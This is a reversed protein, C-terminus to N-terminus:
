AVRVDLAPPGPAGAGEPEPPPLWAVGQQVLTAALRYRGPETPCWVWAYVHRRHGPKVAAPLAAWREGAVEADRYWRLVIYVPAPEGSTIPLASDNAVTVQAILPQSAKTVRARSVLRLGRVAVRSREGRPLAEMPALGARSRPHGWVSSAFMPPRYHDAVSGPAEFRDGAAREVFFGNVGLANCGVLVLGAATALQALADLSAGHRFTRDWSRGPRYPLRWWEGPLFTANYEVVLVRPRCRDLLSRLVWWDDGDIDVVVLDPREPCGAAELVAVINSASAAVPVVTVAEGAVTAAAACLDPDAEVWVGRWGEEVLARTCNQAGDAAGVEVLYRNTTGIRRFIESLIGDEGSESYRTSEYRNLWGRERARGLDLAVYREMRRADLADFLHALSPVSPQLRAQCELAM